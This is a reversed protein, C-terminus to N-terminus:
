ESAEDLGESFAEDLGESSVGVMTIEPARNEELMIPLTITVTTGIGETSDITLTGDHASVIENAVALGIGSGRRTVDAQYFKQKVYPLDKKPIGIGMDEVTIAIFDGEERATVTVTTGSKSYKVANDLINIFVQRLRNPDGFVMPLHEPEDYVVTIHEQRAKATYMLVVEGLEALIDMRSKAIAFRGSQLRSFDLLEEVMGSLRETESLIVDLGRQTLMMDTPEAQLTEGWGRIATLPTRLEHSVSSIFENQTNKSSELESAMHNIADCLDGIEDQREISVRVDLEGEAIKQAVDKIQRMPVVVSRILFNELLVVILVIGFCIAAFVLAFLWITQNVKSLSTVLRIAVYEDSDGSILRTVALVREGTSLKGIYTGMGDESTLAADYDPMAEIGPNQFGSSTVAVNGQYNIAMLELKSKDAYNEVLRRVETSLNTTSDISASSLTLSLSIARNKVLQEVTTYYYSRIVFSFAIICAALIGGLVGASNIMWRRSISHSRKQKEQKEKPTKPKRPSKEKKAM